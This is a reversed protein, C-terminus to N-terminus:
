VQLRQSLKVSKANNKYKNKAIKRKSFIKIYGFGFNNLLLSFFQSIIFNMKYGEKKVYESKRFLM